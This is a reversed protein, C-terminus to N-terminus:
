CAINNFSIELVHKCAIHRAVNAHQPMSVECTSMTHQIEAYIYGHQMNVYILRFNVYTCAHQMHVYTIMCPAYLYDAM